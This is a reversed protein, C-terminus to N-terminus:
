YLLIHKSKKKKKKSSGSTKNISFVFWVPLCAEGPIISVFSPLSIGFTTM